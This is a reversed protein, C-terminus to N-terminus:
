QWFLEKIVVFFGICAVAIYIYGDVKKENRFDEIGLFLFLLSGVSFVLSTSVEFNPVVLWLVMLIIIVLALLINLKRLL